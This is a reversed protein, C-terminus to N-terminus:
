GGDDRTQVKAKFVVSTFFEIFVGWVAGFLYYIGSSLSGEIMYFFHHDPIGVILGLLIGHLFWKMRIASIGIVFGLLTRHFFISLDSLSYIEVGFLVAGGLYCLVGAIFGFVTAIIVRKSSIM